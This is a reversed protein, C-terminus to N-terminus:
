LNSLIDVLSIIKIEHPTASCISLATEVFLKSQFLANDTPSFDTRKGFAKYFSEYQTWKLYFAAPPNRSAVIEAVVNEPFVKNAANEPYGDKVTEVDVGVPSDSVAVAVCTECHSLSFFFDADSLEPKGWENRRIVDDASLNKVRSLVAWAAASQLQKEPVKMQNEIRRRESKPIVSLLEELAASKYDFCLYIM